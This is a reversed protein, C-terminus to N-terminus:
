NKKSWISLICAIEQVTSVICMHNLFIFFLFTVITRGDETEAVVGAISIEVGRSIM